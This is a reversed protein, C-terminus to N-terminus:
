CPQGVYTYMDSCMSRAIDGSHLSDYTYRIDFSVIGTEPQQKTIAQKSETKWVHLIFIQHSTNAKIPYYDTM